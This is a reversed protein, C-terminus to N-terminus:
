MSSSVVQFSAEESTPRLEGLLASLMSSKGSGVAGAVMTLKGIHVNFYFKLSAVHSSEAIGYWDFIFAAIEVSRRICNCSKGRPM